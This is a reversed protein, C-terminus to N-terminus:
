GFVVLQSETVRVDGDICLELTFGKLAKVGDHFFMIAHECPDAIGM